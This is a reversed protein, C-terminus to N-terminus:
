RHIDGFFIAVMVMLNQYGFKQTIAESLEEVDDEIFIPVGKRALQIGMYIKEIETYDGSIAVLKKKINKSVPLTPIISFMRRTLEWLREPNHVDLFANSLQKLLKDNDGISNRVSLRIKEQTTSDIKPMKVVRM